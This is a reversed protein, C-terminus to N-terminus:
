GDAARRLVAERPRAIVTAPPALRRVVLIPHEPLAYFQEQWPDAGLRRLLAVMGREDLRDRKRRATYAEVQEEALPTGAARFLWRTDEQACYVSREVVRVGDWRRHTFGAGAQMTTWEDHAFWHMTTLGHNRALCWCLSDYGDCLYSNNWLVTWRTRSPLALICTPVNAFAPAQSFAADLDPVSTWASSLPEGEVFRAMEAEVATAVRDVPGEVIDLSQTTPWWRDLAGTRTGM